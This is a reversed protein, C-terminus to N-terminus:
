DGLHNLFIYKGEGEQDTVIAHRHSFTGREVDQGSLRVPTGEALLTGFALAEATAWDFDKGTEFMEKKQELQRAIKSNLNFDKPVSTLAKGVKKLDATKVATDGRQDEMRGPKMQKWTGGLWDAGEPTYTKAADFAETLKHKYADDIAKPEE